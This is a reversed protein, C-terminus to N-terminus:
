NHGCSACQYWFSVFTEGKENSKVCVSCAPSCHGDPDSMCDPGVAMDLFYFGDFTHQGKWVGTNMFNIYLSDHFNLYVLIAKERPEVSINWLVHDGVM